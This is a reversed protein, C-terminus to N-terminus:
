RGLRVAGGILVVRGRPPLNTVERADDGLLNEVRVTVALSAAGLPVGYEAHVDVWAADRLTVRTAPFTTFDLDDRDGAYRVAIGATGAAGLPARLRLSGQNAPRRILRKGPAFAADPATEFGPDTVRTDLYVYALTVAWGGRLDLRWEAEVGDASAGTVNFYNVSDPPAPAFTFEILDRFQQDFYTVALTSRGVRHQAGVEWSRSREPALDPNGRVFGQAFNEFFTPEKFGTGAFARFSTRDDARYVLGGLVTAVRGHQGNEDLRGGAQITLPGDLGSLWQLYLGDNRRRERLSDPFPGFASQSESRGDLRQRELEVGATVIAGPTVRWHVHSGFVARRVRERSQFGYFGSTDAPGDARDDIGQRADRVGFSVGVDVRPTVAYRADVNWAPGREFRFTNSDVLRGAGDTPYHYTHDGYRVMASAEAREDPAVRLRLSGVAREYNNNFPLVGDSAFRGAGASYSLAGLAGTIGATLEGVGYTGARAAADLRATGSGTRTFVQVVGAIADSGYLVSAPGRLIEIREVNELSLDAFDFAGGPHNLPVGDLLVKVYDSEGGRLFLSTQGGFSGSEILAAAPTDRLADAVTKYGAARLDAGSLVTVASAVLDVRVPVRTATVTVPPLVTTDRPEQARAPAAFCALAVVLRIAISRIM